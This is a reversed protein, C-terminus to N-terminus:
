FAWVVVVVVVIGATGVDVLGELKAVWVPMALLADEEDELEELEEWVILEPPLEPDERDPAWVGSEIDLLVSSSGIELKLFLGSIISIKSKKFVWLM